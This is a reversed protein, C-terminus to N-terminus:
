LRLPSHNVERGASNVGASVARGIDPVLAEFFVCIKQERSPVSGLCIAGATVIIASTVWGSGGGMGREGATNTV